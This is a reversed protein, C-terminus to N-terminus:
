RSVLEIGDETIKILRKKYLGGIAMKYKKKSVGFFDYIMEAPAKDNIPLFGDVLKLSELIRQGLEETGLNGFAQLLLDIGGDPRTKKIFGPLSQGPELREFIENHYLLGEDVQNIQAVFGLDTERLILLDVKQEPKYKSDM